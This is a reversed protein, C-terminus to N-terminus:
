GESKESVELDYYFPEETPTHINAFVYNYNRRDQSHSIDLSEFNRLFETLEM